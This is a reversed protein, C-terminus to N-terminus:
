KRKLIKEKDPVNEMLIRLSNIAISHLGNSTPKRNIGNAIRIGKGNFIETLTGDKNIKVGLYYDPIKSEACPFTLSDKMTAKIQVKRNDPTVADHIKELGKYLELDYEVQALVEGIDGVLRGDLTFKKDTEKFLEQLKETQEILTHIIHSVQEQM